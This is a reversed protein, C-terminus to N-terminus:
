PSTIICTPSAHGRLVFRCVKPALPMCANQWSSKPLVFTRVAFYVIKDDSSAHRIHFESFSVHCLSELLPNRQFDCPHYVFVEQCLLSACIQSSAISSCGKRCMEMICPATPCQRVASASVSTLGTKVVPNMWLIAQVQGPYRKGDLDGRPHDPLRIHIGLSAVPCM